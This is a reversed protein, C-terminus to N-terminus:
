PFFIRSAFGAVVTIALLATGRQRPGFWPVVVAFAAEYLVAASVLGLAILV